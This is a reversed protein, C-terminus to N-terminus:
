TLLTALSAELRSRARDRTLAAVTARLEAVAEWLEDTGTPAAVVASAALTEPTPTPGVTRATVEAGDRIVASAVLRPVPFGQSNVAVAAILYPIGAEWRWHGSLPSARLVRVAEDTVGPRLSGSVWTGWEDVGATVDAVASRTDAYARTVAEISRLRGYADWDDPHGGALVIQGVPHQGGVDDVLVGTLFKTLDAGAPMTVCGSHGVHCTDALALHGFVRGDDTVTLPTPGDIGDHTLFRAPPRVPFGAATMAEHPCVIADDEYLDRAKSYYRCQHAEVAAVDEPPIDVGGRGGRTVATAATVGAWVATLEGNVVDAFPLKFDAYLPSGGSPSPPM